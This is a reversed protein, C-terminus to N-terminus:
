RYSANVCENLDGIRNYQDELAQFPTEFAYPDLGEQQKGRELSLERAADELNVAEEHVEQFREWTELIEDQDRQVPGKRNGTVTIENVDEETHHAAFVLGRYATFKDYSNSPEPGAIDGTTEGLWDQASFVGSFEQVVEQASAEVEELSVEGDRYESLTEDYAEVASDLSEIEQGLKELGAGMKVQIDKEAPAM